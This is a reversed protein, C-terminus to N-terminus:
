RVLAHALAALGALGSVGVVVPRVRGRTSAAPWGVASWWVVVLAPMLEVALVAQDGTMEGVAALAVISLVTSVVFVANLTARM